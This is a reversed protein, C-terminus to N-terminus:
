LSDGLLGSYYIDSVIGGVVLKGSGLGDYLVTNNLNVGGWELLPVLGM